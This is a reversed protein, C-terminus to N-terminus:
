CPAPGTAFRAVLDNLLGAATRPDDVTVALVRGSTLDLRLGPGARMVIAARGLVRLSGRYGWGGWEMPRIDIAEVRVIDRLPITTCPLGLPGWRVILGRQDASVRISSMALGLLGLVVGGAGLAVSELLVGVGVHVLGVLIIGISWPAAVRRVWAASEGARLGLSAPAGAHESGSPAGRALVAAGLGLVPPVLMIAALALASPGPVARSDTLGRQTLTTWWAITAALGGLQAGVFALGARLLGNTTAASRWLHAATLLLGACVGALTAMLAAFVPLSMWGDPTWALSWHTAVVQPLEHRAVWLPLLAALPLAVALAILRARRSFLTM